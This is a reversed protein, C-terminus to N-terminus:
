QNYSVKCKQHEFLKRLERFARHREEPSRQAENQSELFEKPARKTSGAAGQPSMVVRCAGHITVKSSRSGEKLSGQDGKPTGSVELAESDLAWLEEPPAKEEIRVDGCSM